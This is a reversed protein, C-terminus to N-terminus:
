KEKRRLKLLLFRKTNGDALGFRSGRLFGIWYIHSDDGIVPWHKREEAPIKFNKLCKSVTVSGKMGRPYFQENEHASIIKVTGVKDADLLFEDKSLHEPRAPLIETELEFVPAKFTIKDRSSGKAFFAKGEQLWVAVGASSTRNGTHGRLILDTFREIAEFGLTAGYYGAREKVRTSIDRVIRRRVALPQKRFADIDMFFRDNKECVHKGLFPKVMGELAEDDVRIIEAMHSLTDVLNPNYKKQLEPLLELRIHNRTTIAMDNTIDHCPAYPYNSVFEGIEAKTVPLFPRILRGRKPHIGSLGTLGSGRLMHYLVTEAQDNKHHATAIYKYHGMDATEYLAKYRLERGVTELSGGEKEAVGPVFADCVRCPVGLDHCVKEVFVTEAEAEERMHHNVCCCGISIKEEEAIESLMLLLGLSDPGGSVAALIRDGPKWLEHEHAYARIEKIFAAKEM